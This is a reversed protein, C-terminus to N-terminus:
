LRGQVMDRCHMHREPHEQFWSVRAMILTIWEGVLFINQKVYYSM